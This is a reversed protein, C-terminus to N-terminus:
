GILGTIPLSRAAGCRHVLVREPTPRLLHFDVQVFKRRIESGFM